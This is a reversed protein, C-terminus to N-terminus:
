FSLNVSAVGGRVVRKGWIAKLGARLGDRGYGPGVQVVTWCGFVTFVGTTEQTITSCVREIATLTFHVSHLFFM